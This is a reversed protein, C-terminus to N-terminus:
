WQYSSGRGLLQNMRDQIIEDRNNLREELTSHQDDLSSRNRNLAETDQVQKYDFIKELQERLMQETEDRADEDARRLERALRHAEAEMNRLESTHSHDHRRRRDRIFRKRRSIEPRQRFGRHWHDRGNSIHIQVKPDRVFSDVITTDGESDITIEREIQFNRRRHDRIHMRRSSSDMVILTDRDSTIIVDRETYVSDKQANASQFSFMGFVFCFTAVLTIHKM